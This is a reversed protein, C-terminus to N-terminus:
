EEPPPTVALYYKPQKLLPAYVTGYNSDCDIKVLKRVGTGACYAMVAQVVGGNDWVLVAPSDQTGRADIEQIPRWECHSM